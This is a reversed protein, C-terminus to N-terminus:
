LKNKKVLELVSKYNVMGSIFAWLGSFTLMLVFNFMWANGDKGFLNLTFFNIFFLGGIFLFLSVLLKKNVHFNFVKWCLYVQLLGTLMQTVLSSIASGMAQFKPILIFNLVLNILIGFVAVFNQKKLDGNATLLTGFICTLSVATFCNMLVALITYGETANYDPNTSYYIKEFFHEAYFITSISVILAPTVLLTFSTKVMKEIDERQKLMRSFLPILQISFLTAIQNAADLLRFGKVYIGSQEKGLDGGLIKEIMVSDLRNYFTMLLVLIAYPASKKIIMQNFARDFNLKFTHTKNLVTFFCIIGTLVYGLTQVYIFNMVDVYLGFWGFLMCVLITIQIVRDLVSLVSDLKFLHLAQINSRLFSNFSILFTNISLFLLMKFNYGFIFYGVSLTLAMYFTCLAFKLGLMKSFHKSLLHSNQAINRNNFNTLGFDLFINLLTAFNFIVFYEGYSIDGIQGQVKPEIIITWFPKILLNLVLLIALDFIFKKKQM